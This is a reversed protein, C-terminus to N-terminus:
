EPPDEKNQGTLKGAGLFLIVIVIIAALYPASMAIMTSLVMFFAIALVGILLIKALQM